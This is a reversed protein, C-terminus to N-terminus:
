TTIQRSNIKIGSFLYQRMVTRSLYVPELCLRVRMRRSAARIFGLSATPSFSSRNRSTEYALTVVLIMGHRIVRRGDMQRQSRAAGVAKSETKEREM